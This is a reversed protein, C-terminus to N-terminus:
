ITRNTKIINKTIEKVNRHETHQVLFSYGIAQEGKSEDPPSIHQTEEQILWELSENAHVIWGTYAEIFLHRFSKSSYFHGTAELMSRSTIYFTPDGVRKFCNIMFGDLQEQCIAGAQKFEEITNLPCEEALAKPPAMSVPCHRHTDWVVSRFWKSHPLSMNTTGKDYRILCLGNETRDVVHFFGGEESELFQELQSWTPYQQILAHFVSVFYTMQYVIDYMIFVKISDLKILTGKIM